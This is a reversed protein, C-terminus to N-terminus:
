LEDGAWRRPSNTQPSPCTADVRIRRRRHIEAALPPTRVRAPWDYSYTPVDPAPLLAGIPTWGFARAVRVDDTCVLSRGSQVPLTMWLMSAWYFM